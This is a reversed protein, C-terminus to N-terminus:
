RRAHSSWGRVAFLMGGVGAVWLSLSFSLLSVAVGLSQDAGALSFLGAYSAERLGIGAVSVPLLTIISVATSFVMFWALPLEVGVSRAMLYDMGGRALAMGLLGILPGPLSRLRSFQRLADCLREVAGVARADRWRDPLASRVAAFVGERNLAALLAFGALMMACVPVIGRFPTDVCLAVLLTVMVMAVLGAIRAFLIAAVVGARDQGDRCLRLGMVLDAGAGGPLFIGFFSGVLSVHVMAGLPIALGRARLLRYLVWASLVVYGAMATIGFAYLGPRFSGRAERLPQWDMTFGLYALLALSMIWRVPLMWTRSTSVSAHGAETM